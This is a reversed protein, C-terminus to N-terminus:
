FVFCDYCLVSYMGVCQEMKGSNSKRLNELGAPIITTHQVLM